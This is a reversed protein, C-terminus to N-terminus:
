GPAAAPRVDEASTLSAWVLRDVDALQERPVWRFSVRGLKAAHALVPRASRRGLADAPRKTLWGVVVQSDLRVELDELQLEVARELAAGVAACEAEEVTRVGVARVDQAIVRGSSSTVVFAAVARGNRVGGDCAAVPRQVEEGRRARSEQALRRREADKLTAGERRKATKRRQPREAVCVITAERHTATGAALRHRCGPARLLATAGGM